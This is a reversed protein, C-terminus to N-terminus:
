VEAEGIALVSTRGHARDPLAASDSRQRVSRGSALRAIVDDVYPKMAPHRPVAGHPGAGTTASRHSEQLDTVGSIGPLRGVIKAELEAKRRRRRRHGVAVGRGGSSCISFHHPRPLGSGSGAPRPGDTRRGAPQDASRSAPWAGPPRDGPRGASGGVIPVIVSTSTKPGVMWTADGTALTGALVLMRPGSPSSCRRRRLRRRRAAAPAACRVGGHVVRREKCSRSQSASITRWARAAPRLRARADEVVGSTRCASAWRRRRGLAENVTLAQSALAVPHRLYTPLVAPGMQAARRMPWRWPTLSPWFRNPIGPMWASDFGLAEVGALAQSRSLTARQNPLLERRDEDRGELLPGLRPLSILYDSVCLHQIRGTVAPRCSLPKVGQAPVPFMLTIPVAAGVDHPGGADSSTTM